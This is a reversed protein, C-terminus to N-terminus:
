RHTVDRATLPRLPQGGRRRVDVVLRLTLARGGRRAYVVDRKVTALHMIQLALERGVTPNRYGDAAGTGMQLATALAAALTTEGKTLQVRQERRDV